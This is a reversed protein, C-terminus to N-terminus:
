KDRKKRTIYKVTAYLYRDRAYNTLHCDMHELKLIVNLTMVAMYIERILVQVPEFDM